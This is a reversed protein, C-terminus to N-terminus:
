RNARGLGQGGPAAAPLSHHAQRGLSSSLIRQYLRPRGIGTVIICGCAAGGQSQGPAIRALRRCLCTGRVLGRLVVNQGRESTSTATSHQQMLGSTLAPPRTLRAICLAPSSVWFPACTLTCSRACWFTWQPSYHSTAASRSRARTCVHTPPPTPPPPPFISLRCMSTSLSGPSMQKHGSHVCPAPLLLPHQLAAQTCMAHSCGHAENRM